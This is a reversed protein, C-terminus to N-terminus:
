NNIFPYMIGVIFHKLGEYILFGSVIGVILKKYKSLFSRASVFM